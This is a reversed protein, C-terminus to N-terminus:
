SACEALRAAVDGLYEPWDAVTSTAIQDRDAAEYVAHFAQEATALDPAAERVADQWPHRRSLYAATLLVAPLGTGARNM